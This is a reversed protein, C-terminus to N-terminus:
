FLVINHWLMHLSIQTKKKSLFAFSTLFM